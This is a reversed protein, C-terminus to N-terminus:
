FSPPAVGPPSAAPSARTRWSCSSARGWRRPARRPARRRCSPAARRACPPASGRRGRPRWPRPGPACRRGPWRARGRGSRAPSRTAAPRATGPPRGATALAPLPPSRRGARSSTGASAWAGATRPAFDEAQCQAGSPDGRGSSRNAPDSLLGGAPGGRRRGAGAGGTRNSALHDVVARALALHCALELDDLDGDSAAEVGRWQGDGPAASAPAAAAAPRAPSGRVHRAM